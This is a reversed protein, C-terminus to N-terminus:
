RNRRGMIVAARVEPVSDLDVSDQKYISKAEYKFELPDLSRVVRNSERMIPVSTGAPM